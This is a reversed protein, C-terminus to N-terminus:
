GPEAHDGNIGGARLPVPQSCKEQGKLTKKWPREGWKM